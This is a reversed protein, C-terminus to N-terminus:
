KRGAYFLIGKAIGEAYNYMRTSPDMLPKKMDEILRYKETSHDFFSGETLMAPADAYKMVGLNWIYVGKMSRPTPSTDNPFDTPAELLLPIIDSRWSGGVFIPLEMSKRMELMAAYALAAGDFMDGRLIDQVLRYRYYPNEVRM